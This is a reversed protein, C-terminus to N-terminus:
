KKLLLYGGAAVALGGAVYLWTPIQLGASPGYEKQPYGSAYRGQAQAATQQLLRNAQSPNQSITRFSTKKAAAITTHLPHMGQEQRTAKTGAKGVLSSLFGGSTGQGISKADEYTQKGSRYTSTGQSYASKATDVAGKGSEFGSKVNDLLGSFSIVNM